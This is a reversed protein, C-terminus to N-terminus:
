QIDENKLSSTNDNHFCSPDEIHNYPQKARAVRNMMSQESCTAWRPCEERLISRTLTLISFLLSDFNFLADTEDFGNPFSMNCSEEDSSGSQVSLQEDDNNIFNDVVHCVVLREMM